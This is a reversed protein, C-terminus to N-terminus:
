KEGKGLNDRETKRKKDKSDRGGEMRANENGEVINETNRIDM